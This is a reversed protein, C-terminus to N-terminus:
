ARQPALTKAYLSAGALDKLTFAESTVTEGYMDVAADRVWGVGDQWALLPYATQFWALEGSTAYGMREDTKPGLTVTFDAKVTLSTGAAKCAPLKAEVLTGSAGAAAGAAQVDTHLPTGDVTVTGITMGNGAKTLVPKNPWARLVVECVQKDPTFMITESGTASRLDDAVDYALSVVPRTPSPTATALRTGTPGPTESSSTGAPTCGALAAALVAALLLRVRV